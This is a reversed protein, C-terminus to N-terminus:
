QRCRATLARKTTSPLRTRIRGERGPRATSPLHAASETAAAASEDNLRAESRRFCIRASRVVRSASFSPMRCRIEVNVVSM